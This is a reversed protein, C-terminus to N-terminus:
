FKDMARSILACAEARTASGDGKFTNDPYGQILGEAISTAVYGRAWPALAADDAFGTKVGASAQASNEKGMARILIAAIEARTILDGPRFMGDEGKVFGAGAAAEVYGYFWQGSAVDSFTARAPQLVSLGKASMIMKAFEARTISSEPQFTHDPYGTIIGKQCLETILSIAWHDAKVDKFTCNNPVEKTGATVFSWSIAENDEDSLTAEVTGAPIYVTYKTGPKFQNHAIELVRAKIVAKVGDQKNGNDDTIYVQSLNVARISMNFTVSVPTVLEVGTAGNVPNQQNVSLDASGGGGGGGGGGNREVATTFSLTFDNQLGNGATDQVAGAPILVTYTEDFKLDGAPIISLLAGNVSQSFSVLANSSDKLTITNGNVTEVDESFTITVTKSVSVNTEGDGPKTSEVTPPTLDETTFSLTYPEKLGNGANDQVAGAPINLTYVVGDKLNNNPNIELIANNISKTLAVPNNSADKLTIANYSSGAQVLESFTISITKDVPVSVEDAAPEASIVAPPTPDGDEVKFVTEAKAANITAFIQYDGPDLNAAPISWEYKGNEDTLVQGFYVATGEKSLVLGVTVDTQKVENKFVYGTVNVDAGLSYSTKGTSVTVSYQDLDGGPPAINFQETVMGTQNATATITYSGDDLATLPINWTFNGAGDTQKQAFMVPSEGDKMLVLGIYVDPVQSENRLLTGSVLVTHDDARIYDLKDTQVPLRYSVGQALLNNVGASVPLCLLLLMAASILAGVFRSRLKM